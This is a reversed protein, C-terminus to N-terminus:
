LICKINTINVKYFIYENKLIKNYNQNTSVSFELDHSFVM